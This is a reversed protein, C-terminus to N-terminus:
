DFPYPQQWREFLPRLSGQEVLQAMRRDYL